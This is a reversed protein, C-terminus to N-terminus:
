RTTLLSLVALLNAPDDTGIRFAKGTSDVVEIADLGWVNYMWGVPIKRIGFGHWWRNRVQRVRTVDRLEIAKRPWGFGFTATVRDTTVTVELRSSILLAASIAVVFATIVATSFASTEDDGGLWLVVIMSGLLITPISMKGWQTRQYEM